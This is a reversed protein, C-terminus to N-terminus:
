IVRALRAIESEGLTHLADLLYMQFSGPGEARVAAMEGALGFVALAHTAAVLPDRETALFAGVIASASCGMGTLRSMLRHGNAVTITRVGDTIYDTAGTMAVVSGTTRALAMAVGAADDSSATSDVGKTPGAAAGALALIESANARIVTPRLAALDAAVKTRYRTAGVGVPDLVWPVGDANARLAALRMGAVWEPSLTGINVVLAGSITVFDEVEEAAHIMAPSAGIALLANATNNMVVFNTINHVLPAAERLRRVSDWIAHSTTM